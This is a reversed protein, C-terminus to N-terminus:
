RVWTRTSTSRPALPSSRGSSAMASKTPSNSWDTSTATSPRSALPEPYGKLRGKNDYVWAHYPCTFKRSNGAGCAPMAGRHRCYNLFVHAQGDRDRTILLSDGIVSRVVYDFSSPIQASALVALPARRLITSEEIDALKDDNYYNLPVRLIDDAM